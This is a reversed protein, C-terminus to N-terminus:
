SNARKQLSQIVQKVKAADNASIILIDGRPDTFETEQCPINAARLEQIVLEKIDRHLIIKEIIKDEASM